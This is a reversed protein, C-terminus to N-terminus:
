LTKPSTISVSIIMALRRRAVAARAAQPLFDHSFVPHFPDQALAPESQPCMGAANGVRLNDLQDPEGAKVGRKDVHLVCGVIQVVHLECHHRGLADPDRRDHACGAEVRRENQPQEIHAYLADLHRM